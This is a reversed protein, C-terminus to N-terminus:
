LNLPLSAAMQDCFTPVTLLGASGDVRANSAAVTGSIVYSHGQADTGWSGPAVTRGFSDSSYDTSTSASVTLVTSGSILGSTASISSTGGALGTALGGASITATAPPASAWSVSGTIVAPSADPSPGAANTPAAPTVAISVLTSASVTLVTSGSILGSTANISSTGGALGTALGGASITATAPTASAWSVSG